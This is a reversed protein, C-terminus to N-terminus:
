NLYRNLIELFYICTIGTIKVQERLINVKEEGLKTLSFSLICQNLKAISNTAREGADPVVYIAKLYRSSAVGHNDFPLLPSYHTIAGRPRVM